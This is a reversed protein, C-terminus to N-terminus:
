PSPKPSEVGQDPVSRSRRIRGKFVRRAKWRASWYKAQERTWHLARQAWHYRRALLGVGALLVLIGPGPLFLLLVGTVVLLWGAVLTLIAKMGSSQDPTVM